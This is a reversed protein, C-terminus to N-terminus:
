LMDPIYTARVRRTRHDPYTVSADFSVQRGSLAADVYREVTKYNVEGLLERIHKGVIRECEVGHWAEYQKNVFRYRRDSDVYAVQGELHDAILRLERESEQRGAEVDAVPGATGGREPTQEISRRHSARQGEQPASYAKLLEVLPAQAGRLITYGEAARQECLRALIDTHVIAVEHPAVGDVVLRRGLAAARELVDPSPRDLSAELLGAYEDSWRELIPKPKKSM